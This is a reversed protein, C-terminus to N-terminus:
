TTRGRAQIPRQGPRRSDSRPASSLRQPPVQLTARPPFSASGRLVPDLRSQSSPSSAICTEEFRTTTLRCSAPMTPCGTIIVLLSQPVPRNVPTKNRPQTGYSLTPTPILRISHGRASSVGGDVLKHSSNEPTHTRGTGEKRLLTPVVGRADGAKLMCKLWRTAHTRKRVKNQRDTGKGWCYRLCQRQHWSWM